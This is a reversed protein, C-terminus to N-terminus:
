DTFRIEIDTRPSNQCALIWGVKVDNPELVYAFDIFSRIEGNVLKCRCSACSGVQCSHPFAIGEMLAAGLISQGSEVHFQKDTLRVRYAM